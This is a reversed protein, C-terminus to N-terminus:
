HAEDVPQTAPPANESGVTQPKPLVLETLEGLYAAVSAHGVAQALPRLGAAVRACATPM